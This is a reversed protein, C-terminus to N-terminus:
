RAVTLIVNAAPATTGTITGSAELVVYGPGAQNTFGFTSSSGGHGTAGLADVRLDGVDLDHGRIFVYGGSPATDRSPDPPRASIGGAAGLSLEGALLLVIGGGPSFGDIYRVASVALDCTLNGGSGSGMTLKTGDGVGYVGGPEGLTRDNPNTGAEGPQAHGATACVPSNGNFSDNLLASLGGSGGANRLTTATGPGTISEGAETALNDDCDSDDQSWRGERYGLRSADLTGELALTGARLVLVGGTAGNWRAMTVRVNPAITLAGFHPVRILAVKQDSAGVGINQDTGLPAGYTRRKPAAFTVASATVTAVELLEWTGVARTATPTGQLNILLVEDAPGLCDVATAASIAAISSTLSRVSFAPAEACARGPTVPAQSLDINTSILTAGLCDGATCVGGTCATGDVVPPGDECGEVGGTCTTRGERCAAGPNTSCALGATCSPGSDVEEADAEQSDPPAADDTQGDRGTEADQGVTADQRAGGDARGGDQTATADLSM